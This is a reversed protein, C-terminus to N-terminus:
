TVAYIAYVVILASVVYISVVSGLAIAAVMLMTLAWMFAIANPNM